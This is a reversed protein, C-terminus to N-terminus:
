GSVASSSGASAKTGDGDAPRGAPATPDLLPRRKQTLFPTPTVREGNKESRPM